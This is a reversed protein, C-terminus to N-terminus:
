CMDTWELQWMWPAVQPFCSNRALLHPRVGSPGQEFLHSPCAAQFYELGTWDVEQSGFAVVTTGLHKCANGLVLFLPKPSSGVEVPM